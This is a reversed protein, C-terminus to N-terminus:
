EQEDRCIASAREALMRYFDEQWTEAVSGQHGTGCTPQWAIRLADMAMSVAALPLLKDWNADNNEDPMHRAAPWRKAKDQMHGRSVDATKCEALFDYLDARIFSLRVDAFGGARIKNEIWLSGQRAHDMLEYLREEWRPGYPDIPEWLHKVGNAGNLVWFHSNALSRISGGDYTMFELVGCGDYEGRFPLSLPVYQDDTYVTDQTEEVPAIFVAVVPDGHRIPLRSLMCTENWRGM